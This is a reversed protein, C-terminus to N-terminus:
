CATSTMRREKLLLALSGMTKTTLTGFTEREGVVGIQVMRAECGSKKQSELLIQLKHTVLGCSEGGPSSIHFVHLYNSTNNKAVIDLHELYILKIANNSFMKSFAHM